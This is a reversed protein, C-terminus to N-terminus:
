WGGKIGKEESWDVSSKFCSVRLQAVILVKRFISVKGLLLLSVAQRMCQKDKSKAKYAV